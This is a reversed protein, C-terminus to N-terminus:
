NAESVVAEMVMARARRERSRTMFSSVTVALLLACGNFVQTIWAEAGLLTLGNVAVAVLFVGIVTGWVNYYGPNITTQGLFVAALAPFLYSQATGQDASGTRVALLAGALGAVLGSLLFVSMVARDVRIGALRAATENSGIAVLKRGFPTEALLYWAVVAILMLFWFPRAIGLWKGALWTGLDAPMGTLIQGKTYLQLLGGITIYMAFTTIFPNLRLAGVLVANVAGVAVGLSIGVLLGVPVPLGHTGISSAVGVASLGAVAAVSLDFYGAVLPIVMGIAILGTVSQNAAINQINAASTFIPGTTPNLSFFLILILLLVPLAAREGVHGLATM